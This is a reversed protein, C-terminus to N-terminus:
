YNMLCYFTRKVTNVKLMNEHILVDFKEQRKKEKKYKKGQPSQYLNKELLIEWMFTQSLVTVKMELLNATFINKLIQKDDKLTM